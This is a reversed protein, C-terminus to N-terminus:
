QLMIFNAWHAPGPWNGRFELVSNRWSLAPDGNRILASYFVRMYDSASEDHVAWLSVQLQRAGAHLFGRTLGVFEDGAASSGAGTFCGSLTVLEAQLDLDYLDAVNLRGDGLKLSSFMPNDERFYGHTALHLLRSGPANQCLAAITAQDGVFTRARPLISAIARVEEEISPALPDPVGFLLPPGTSTTSRQRARHHVAASLSFTVTVKEILPANRHLFAHFPLGHLEGHPIVTLHGEPLLAEAPAILLDYLRHLHRDLAPNHAQAPGTRSLQFRALRAAARIPEVSGLDIAKLSNRTVVFLLLRGRAAFYEFLAAAPDLAAQLEDLPLDGCGQLDALEPDVQRLTNLAISLQSELDAIRTRIAVRRSEPLPERVSDARDLQHWHWALDARLSAIGAAEIYRGEVASGPPVSARFALQDALSRSKAEEVFAFARAAARPGGQRLSLDALAEYTSLKDGLYALKLQDHPLAHRAGRIALHAKRYAALARRPRGLAEHVAGATQLARTALLSDPSHRLCRLTRGLHSSADQARGLSLAARAQILAALGAFSSLSAAVLFPEAKAAARAADRWLGDMLLLAAKRVDTVAAWQRNREKLFLARARLLDDVAAGHGGTAGLATARNALAKAAEFGTGLAIFREFASSAAQAAEQFLNLDLYLDSQDLEAVSLYFPNNREASHRRASQYLALAQRYDGRLYHLCALNDTVEALLPLAEREEYYRRAREYAALSRPFDHLTMACVALNRLAVIANDHDGLRELAACASEYLPLAEEARDQRHLVNALNSELRALRLSDGRRQFIRRAEEAWQAAEDYRSLYILSQLASSLTRALALDDGASRAHATALRYCRLAHAYRGSLYHVHARLRFAEALLGADGIRRARRLADEILRSAGALDSHLLRQASECDALVQDRSTV